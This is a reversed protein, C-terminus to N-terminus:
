WANARSAFKTNVEESNKMDVLNSVFGAVAEQLSKRSSSNIALRRAESVPWWHTKPPHSSENHLPVFEKSPKSFPEFDISIGNSGFYVLLDLYSVSKSSWQDASIRYTTGCFSKVKMLFVRVLSASSAVVLIDDRFRIWAKVGFEQLVEKVLVHM